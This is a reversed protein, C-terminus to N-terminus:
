IYPVTYPFNNALSNKRINSIAFYVIALIEILICHNYDYHIKGIFNGAM